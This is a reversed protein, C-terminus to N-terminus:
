EEIQYKERLKLIDFVKNMGFKSRISTLFGNAIINLKVGFKLKNIEYKIDALDRWTVFDNFCETATKEITSLHRYKFTFEELWQDIIDRNGEKLNSHYNTVPLALSGFKDM